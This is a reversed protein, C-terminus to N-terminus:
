APVSAFIDGIPSMRGHAGDLPMRARRYVDLDPQRQRPRAEELAVTGVERRQWGVM